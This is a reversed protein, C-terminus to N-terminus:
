VTRDIKSQTSKMWGNLMKGIESMKVNLNELAGISILKRTFSIRILVRLFSLTIDANKLCHVRQTGDEFRASNLHMILDLANQDLRSVLSHRLFVPFKSSLDFILHCLNESLISIALDQDQNQIKM